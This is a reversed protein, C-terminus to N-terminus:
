ANRTWLLFERNETSGAAEIVNAFDFRDYQTVTDYVEDYGKAGQPLMVKLGKGCLALWVDPLFPGQDTTIMLIRDIDSWKIEATGSSPHNISVAQDTITIEYFDEPNTM